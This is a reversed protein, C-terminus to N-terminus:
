VRPGVFSMMSRKVEILILCKAPHTPDAIDELIDAQIGEAHKRVATWDLNEPISYRNAIYGGSEHEVVTLVCDCTCQIPQYNM